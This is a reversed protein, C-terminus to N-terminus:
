RAARRTDRRAAAAGGADRPRLAEAFQGGALALLRAGDTLEGRRTRYPLLNGVGTVAMILALGLV